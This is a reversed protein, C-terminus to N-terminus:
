IEEVILELLSPESVNKIELEYDYSSTKGGELTWALENGNKDYFCYEYGVGMEAYLTSDEEFEVPVGVFIRKKGTITTVILSIVAGEENESAAPAVGLTAAVRIRFHETSSSNNNGVRFSLTYAGNEQPKFSFTDTEVVQGDENTDLGKISFNAVKKVEFPIDISHSTQYRSYTVGVAGVCVFVLLLVAMLAIRINQKGRNGRM